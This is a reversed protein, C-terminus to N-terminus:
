STPFPIVGMLTRLYEFKDKSLPKTLIDAIMHDGPCYLVEVKGEEVAERVFHYRIHLHRTRSSHSPSYASKITSQNDQYVNLSKHSIHDSNYLVTAIEDRLNAFTIAERVTGTLTVTESEGSSLTVIPQKYSRWYIPGFGLHITLGGRSRGRRESGFSADGTAWLDM